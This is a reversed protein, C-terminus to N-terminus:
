DEDRTGHWVEHMAECDKCSLVTHILYYDDEADFDSNWILEGGCGWCRHTAEFKCQDLTRIKAEVWAKKAAEQVWYPKHNEDWWKYFDEM